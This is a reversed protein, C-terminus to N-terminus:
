RLMTDLYNRIRAMAKKLYEKDQSEGDGGMEAETAPPHDEGTMENVKANLDAALAQEPPLGEQGADDLDPAFRKKKKDRIVKSLERAEFM